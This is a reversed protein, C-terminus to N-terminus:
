FLCLLQVTALSKLISKMYMYKGAFGPPGTTVEMPTCDAYFNIDFSCSTLVLLMSYMNVHEPCYVQPLSPMNYEKESTNQDLSDPLIPSICQIFSLLLTCLQERNHNKM